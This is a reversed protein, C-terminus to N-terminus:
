VKIYLGRKSNEGFVNLLVPFTGELAFTKQLIAVFPQAGM